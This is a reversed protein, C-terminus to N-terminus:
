WGADELTKYMAYIGDQRGVLEEPTGQEV